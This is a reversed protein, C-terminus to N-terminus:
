QTINGLASVRCESVTSSDGGIGAGGVNLTGATVELVYQFNQHDLPFPGVIQLDANTKEVYAEALTTVSGDLAISRLAIRAFGGGVNNTTCAAKVQASTITGLEHGLVHWMKAASGYGIDSVTVPLNVFEGKKPGDYNGGGGIPADYAAFTNTPFSIAGGVLMDAKAAKLAFPVALVRERSSQPVGDVSLQLWHESGSALAGAIGGEEYSYSVNITMGVPPPGNPYIVTIRSLGGSWLCTFNEEDSSGASQSWTHTGDEVNVSGAVVPLNTVVKQFTGLVGDTVAATESTATSSTGAGGFQFSYIGGNVPISGLYETYLLNGGTQADYIALSMAHNGTVPSGGGDTLRGQYNILSPVTTAHSGVALLLTLALIPSFLKKM